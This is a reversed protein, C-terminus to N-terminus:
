IEEKEYDSQDITISHDFLYEQLVPYFNNQSEKIFSYLDDHVNETQSKKLAARYALKHEDEVIIPLLGNVISERFMIIRGTRGNGDQFPHIQEYRSHFLALDDSILAKEKKKSNYESLLVEMDQKVSQPTSTTIGGVTNVRSKYAGPIYGNARFEFVGSELQYHFDKILGETLPDDLTGLMHNFMLFHGSMEEVDKARYEGQPLFGTEFLTATDDETLRTGEIKNSNYALHRQTYGYIGGKDKKSFESQMQSIYFQALKATDERTLSYAEKKLISNIDSLRIDEINSSPILITKTGSISVTQELTNKILNYIYNPAEREGLEWSQITRVPIGTLKSLNTRSLKYRDRLDKISKMNVGNKYM